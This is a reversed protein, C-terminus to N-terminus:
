ARMDRRRSGRDRWVSRAHPGVDVEMAVIPVDDFREGFVNRLALVETRDDAVTGSAHAQVYDVDIPLVEADALAAEMVATAQQGDPNMVMM